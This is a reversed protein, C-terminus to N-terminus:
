GENGTENPVYPTGDEQFQVKPNNKLEILMKNGEETWKKLAEEVSLKKEVVQQFYRNGDNVQNLGPKDVFMKELTSNMPPVPKLKFFAEINYDLGQKPKIFSKRSVMEYSSGSRSRLKAFDEGNVFKIFEWATEANPASSNIAFVNSLYM